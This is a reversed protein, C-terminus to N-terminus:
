VQFIRQACGDVSDGGAQVVGALFQQNRITSQVTTTTCHIKLSEIFADDRVRRLEAPHPIERSAEYSGGNRDGRSIREKAQFVAGSLIVGESRPV